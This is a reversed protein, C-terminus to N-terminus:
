RKSSSVLVSANLERKALQALMHKALLQLGQTTERRPSVVLPEFGQAQLYEGMIRALAAASISKADVDITALYRWGAAIAEMRGESRYQSYREFWQSDPIQDVIFVKSIARIPYGIFLPVQVVDFEKYIDTFDDSAPDKKSANQLSVLSNIQVTGTGWDIGSETDSRWFDTLLNFKQQYPLGDNNEAEAVSKKLTVTLKVSAKVIGIKLAEIIQEEVISVSKANSKVTESRLEKSSTKSIKVWDTDYIVSGLRDKFKLVPEEILDVLLAQPKARSRMLGLSSPKNVTM